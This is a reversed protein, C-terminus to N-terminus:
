CEIGSTRSGSPEFGACKFNHVHIPCWGTGLMAVMGRCVIKVFRHRVHPLVLAMVHERLAQIMEMCDTVFVLVAVQVLLM